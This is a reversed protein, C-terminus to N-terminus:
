LADQGAFLQAAVSRDKLVGHDFFNQVALSACALLRTLM